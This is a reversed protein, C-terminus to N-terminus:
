AKRETQNQPEFAVQRLAQVFQSRQHYVGVGLLLGYLGGGIAVPLTLALGLYFALALLQWVNDGVFSQHLHRKLLWESGWLRGMYIVLLSVFTLPLSQFLILSMYTLGLTFFLLGLNLRLMAREERYAKLYSNTLLALQGEFIFLPYVYAFLTMVQRYDPLWVDIFARIPFYGM